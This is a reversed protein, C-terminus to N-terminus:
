IVKKVAEYIEKADDLRKTQIKGKAVNLLTQGLDRVNTAVIFGRTYLNDIFFMHKNQRKFMGERLQPYFVITKKGSTAAESIMSISDGSVIIIDGLGLMGAVTEPVDDKKPNIFLISLGERKFERNLMQEITDPTRRSTTIMIEANIEKLVAKLQQILVKIQPESLYLYKSDGGILLAVKMKTKMRLHSYRELLKQSAEKLSQESIINLAGNTVSVKDTIKKSRLDHAPLVVMSFRNSPLIGPKQLVISKAKHDSSLLYNLGATSSGCSVIFEAKIKTVAEFSEKTLFWKLIELRGQMFFPHALLSVVSFLDAFFDNKFEVSVTQINTTIEREELAKTLLEAMKQSQRLHGMRGDDLIAIHTEKSYKWIKYFWMYESPYLRIYHEMLRSISELNNKIDEESNDTQILEMPKNIILRHRGGKERIVISFCLPVGSKLGLRIAGSSLSAQRNFFPVLVGDRGGQDVVMGIVENNQLSKILDRTGLGKSLVISGNCSRYSNLLDDLKSYKSQPKVFVKYPFGLMACSLSALEWSGFHMALLILGKGKELAKQVNEKGEIYVFQDFKDATMLPLRLLEILNQGYGKFLNKTIRKLERSSMEHSFAMKLNAYAQSRHKIDFYYAWLGAAKGIGLALGLPLRRIFSSFIKIFYLLVYEKM